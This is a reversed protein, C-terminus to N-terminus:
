RVAARLDLRGRAVPPCWCHAGSLPRTFRFLADVVGDEAGVMRRAIAEFPDLSAAFAVFVLGEGHPDSWPMSRRLLFAAPAFSEQAARKVHASEPAEAIEENDAHRRGIIEDREEEALAAFSELDHHWVQLSVFSSGDLGPGAGTVLAVEAARDEPNETGDEYGSLDRGGAHVFSEVVEALEFADELERELERTAHILDGRDDGRLWCWLACPTSPMEVGHGVAHPMPRLGPVAGGLLAVTAPGLGVVLREDIALAGLRAAVASPAAEAILEFVLHRAHPPLPALIGPQCLSPM